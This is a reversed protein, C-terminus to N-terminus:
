KIRGKESVNVVLQDFSMTEGAMINELRIVAFAGRIKQKKRQGRPNGPATFTGSVKPATNAEAKEMAESATRGIFVKYGIDNSDAETGASGGGSSTLSMSHIAGEKGDSALAFPGLTIYSNIAEDSAGIDDSKATSLFKRIYGDKCGVLLDRYDPDNAAYFWVSYVGCEEPYSEPFFAYKQVESDGFTVPSLSMFYNSNTGDALLTICILIGHRKRDYGMTIRHTTPNVAEDGVLDPLNIETLLEVSINSKDVKYVGSAGWLYLNDDEDFCWSEAGFIGTTKDIASLSGGEAPDGYMVWITTACGFILYERGRPILARIIDGVEGPVNANEGGAVPSGGDNALYAYDWPNGNRSKYWQNPSNPNGSLYISGRYTCGLYAKAPLAGSAGGPYVTYDYWLPPSTDTATPTFATGAGSGTVANTTNFTGTTIKGYTKTKLVNTYEVTMKAGTVAQTLVDGATHATALVAHTLEGNIGTPTFGTGSGSGTVTNVVNWTGSTVYGYTATKATNTFDVIMTANSTAQTLIDGHAHATALATHTLKVNIFDAVKLKAGNIVFVKQYAAFMVLQDSTDIDGTAAAFELMTGPVATDEFFFNDNGVGVLRRYSIYETIDVAM